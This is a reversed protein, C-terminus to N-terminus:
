LGRRRSTGRIKRPDVPGPPPLVGQQLELTITRDQDMVLAQSAGVWSNAGAYLTHQKGSAVSSWDTWTASAPIGSVYERYVLYIQNELRFDVVPKGNSNTRWSWAERDDEQVVSFIANELANGDADEITLDLKKMDAIMAPNTRVWTGDFSWTGYLLINSDGAVSLQSIGGGTFTPNILLVTGNAVTLGLNSSVTFTCDEFVVPMWHDDFNNADEIINDHRYYQHRLAQSISAVRNSYTGNFQCNKFYPGTAATNVCTAAAGTFTCDEFLLNRSAGRVTDVNMEVITSPTGGVNTSDFAINKFSCPPVQQIPLFWWLQTTGATNFPGVTVHEWDWRDTAYFSSLGAQWIFQWRHSNKFVPDNVGDGRAYWRGSPFVFAGNGSYGFDMTSKGYVQFDGGHNVSFRAGGSSVPTFRLEETQTFDGANGMIVQGTNKITLRRNGVLEYVGAAPNDFYTPDAIDTYVSAWTNGLGTIEIDSGVKVAGM